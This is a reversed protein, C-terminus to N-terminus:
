YHSLDAVQNINLQNAVSGTPSLLPMLDVVCYGKVMGLTLM